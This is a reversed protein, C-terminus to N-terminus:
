YLSVQEKVQPSSDAGSAMAANVETLVINWDGRRRANTCKSLHKDVLQLMKVVVPDSPEKM